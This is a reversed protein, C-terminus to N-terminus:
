NLGVLLKQFRPQESLASFAEDSKIRAADKFGLGVAEELVQIAMKKDRNLAYVRALEYALNSNQPEIARALQFNSIALAYDRRERLNAQAAEVSEVLLHSLIRRALRRERSDATSEKTKRWDSLRINAEHRPTRSEDPDPAKMWLLRIEGAERLQRQFLESEAQEEKRLEASKSLQAV